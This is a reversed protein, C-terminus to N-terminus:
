SSSQGGARIHSITNAVIASMALALSTAVVITFAVRSKSALAVTPILLTLVIGKQANVKQMASKIILKGAQLTLFSENL